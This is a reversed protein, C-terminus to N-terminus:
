PKQKEKEQSAFYNNTKEIDDIEARVDADLNEYPFKITQKFFEVGRKSWCVVFGRIAAQHSPSYDEMVKYAEQITAGNELAEMIKFVDRICDTNTNAVAELLERIFSSQKGQYVLKLGHEMLEPIEYIQKRRENIYNDYLSSNEEYNTAM